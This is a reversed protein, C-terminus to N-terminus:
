YSFLSQLSKNLFDIIIKNKEEDTFDITTTGSEDTTINVNEPTFNTSKSLTLGKYVIVPNILDTSYVVSGRKIRRQPALASISINETDGNVVITHQGGIILNNNTISLVEVTISGEIVGESKTDINKTYTTDSFYDVEPLFSMMSNSKAPTITSNATAETETKYKVITTNNFLITIADGIQLPKRDLFLEGSDVWLSKAHILNVFLTSVFLTTLVVFFKSKM